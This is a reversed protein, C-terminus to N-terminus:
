KKNLKAQLDKIQASQEQIASVLVATLRGYDVGFLGEDTGHVAQPIVKKLDQAMFGFDRAGGEKWTFNVANLSNVTDLANRMPEVDSKLREDSFTVFASARIKNINNSGASGNGVDIAYDTTADGGLRVIETGGDKVVLANQSADWLMLDNANTGYFTVDAGATSAGVTLTGNTSLDAATFDVDGSSVIKLDTGDGSIYEGANGFALRHNATAMVCNNAAQDTLTFKSTSGINLICSDSLLDLDDGIVVSKVVSLGGDTQLSGDTTSTAETADNVLIRGTTNLNDNITTESTTHGISIAVGSTATGVSVGGSGDIAVAGGDADMDISAGGLTLAADSDVTVAAAGDVVFAGASALTAGTSGDHTITVDKGAGLGLVASDSLLFVDDGAIIDKAVSLGGDTQLSGDTTSTAETTDDCIIRGSYTGQAAAVNGALHINKFKMTSAGLDIANNSTPMLPKGFAIVEGGSNATNFAMYVNSGEKIELSGTLNDTLSIDIGQTADDAALTDLSLQGVNTINGDSLDLSDCDLAAFSGAAASAAGIITGDIAGSNIDVNTMDEDSFDIAGAAEFAGIKTVTLTDTSFSFDSDDSLVGNTGAFVVRGATLDDALLGKARVTFNGVDVNNAITLSTLSDATGGNIDPSTLTKNTLTQTATTAVLPIESGALGAAWATESHDWILSADTTGTRGVHIGGDQQAGAAGGTYNIQMVPDEVQVTTTDLTTTTGQVTLDGTLTLGTFQPSDGTGLGMSTRATAGSEYAFAGVGTAVIFEGDASAAGLTNLDELVGNVNITLTQSGAVTTLGTGGAIDLVQSDLDVAGTGSDGQFDLDAATVAGDVYAKISQQTALATASDSAMNDEDLVSAVETSSGLKLKPTLMGVNVQVRENAASGTLYISGSTSPQTGVWNQLDVYPGYQSASAVSM